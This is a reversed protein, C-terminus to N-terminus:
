SRTQPRSSRVHRAYWDYSARPTRALTTRDVHVLGFKQRYGEAWEFNDLLTWVFYGRVDIGADQADDLARLHERLFDVRRVDEIAGDVMPDDYSCGNETVVVPPLAPGYRERLTLLLETLGTPAVVWGIDTRGASSGPPADHVAFPLGDPM